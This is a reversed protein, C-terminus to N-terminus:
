EEQYINDLYLQYHCFIHNYFLFSIRRHLEMETQTLYSLQLFHPFTFKYFLLIFLM